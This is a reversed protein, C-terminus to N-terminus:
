RRDVVGPVEPMDRGISGPERGLPWGDWPQPLSWRLNARLTLMFRWEGEVPLELTDSAEYPLRRSLEARTTWSQRTPLRLALGGAAREPRWQLAQEGQVRGVLDLSPLLGQRLILGWRGDSSQGRETAAERPGPPLARSLELRLADPGIHRLEMYATAALDPDVIAEDPDGDVVQLAVGARGQSVPGSRPAQADDELLAQSSRLSPPAENYRLQLRQGPQPAAGTRGGPPGGRPAARLELNAGSVTSGIRYLLGLSESREFTDRLMRELGMVVGLQSLERVRDADQEDLWPAQRDFAALRWYADMTAAPERYITSASRGSMVETTAQHWRRWYNDTAPALPQSPACALVAAPEECPLAPPAATAPPALLAALLLGVLSHM